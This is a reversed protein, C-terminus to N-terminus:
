EQADGLLRPVHCKGRLLRNVIFIKREDRHFAEPNAVTYDCVAAAFNDWKSKNGFFCPPQEGILLEKDHHVSTPAAVEAMPEPTEPRSM